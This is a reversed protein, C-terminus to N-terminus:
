TGKLSKEQFNTPPTVFIENPTTIKKITKVRIIPIEGFYHGKEIVGNIKIWSNTEYESIKNYNCLFGVVQSHSDDVLMDRAIVFENNSFEKLRFVYGVITINKGVYKEINDYSDVLINTYNSNTIEINNKALIQKLFTSIAFLTFLISIIIVIISFIKTINLRVNFIKM